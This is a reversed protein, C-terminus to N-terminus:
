KRKRSMDFTPITFYSNEDTLLEAIANYWALLSAVIGMYGGAKELDANELFKSATLLTFTITVSISLLVISGKTKFTALLMLFSFITWGLQFIGLAQNLESQSAYAATINFGPILITAYSLWFGGYSSCITASLTNGVKFEWMGALLQVIGGYFLALGVVVNPHTIGRAQVTYISLVFTTLAFSFLGLPTPNGFKANLRLEEIM